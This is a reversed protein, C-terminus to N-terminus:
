EIDDIPFHIEQGTEYEIKLKTILVAGASPYWSNVHMIAVLPGNWFRKRTRIFKGTWLIFM